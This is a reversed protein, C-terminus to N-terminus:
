HKWLEHKNWFDEAKKNIVKDSCEHAIKIWKKSKTYNKVTNEESYIVGLEFAAEYKLGDGKSNFSGEDFEKKFYKIALIPDKLVRSGNLFSKGLALYTAGIIIERLLQEDSPENNDKYKYEYDNELWLEHKNWFDEAKKGIVRNTNKYAKKIQEENADTNVNLIKYLQEDCVM